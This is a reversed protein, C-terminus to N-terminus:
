LDCYTAGGGAGERERWAWGLPRGRYHLSDDDYAYQPNANLHSRPLFNSTLLSSLLYPWHDSFTGLLNSSSGFTM